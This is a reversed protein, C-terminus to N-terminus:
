HVFFALKNFDIFQSQFKTPIVPSSGAVVPGGSWCELGVSSCGASSLPQLLVFDTGFNWINIQKKVKKPSNFKIGKAILQLIM